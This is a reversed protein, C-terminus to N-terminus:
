RFLNEEDESNELRYSFDSKENGSIDILNEDDEENDIDLVKLAFEDESETNIDEHNL